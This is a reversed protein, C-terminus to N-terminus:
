YVATISPLTVFIQVICAQQAPVIPISRLMVEKSPRLFEFNANDDFEDDSSLADDSSAIPYGQL